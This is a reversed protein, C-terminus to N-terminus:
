TLAYKIILASTSIAIGIPSIAPQIETLGIAGMTTLYYVRGPSLGSLSETFGATEVYVTAGSAVNTKAFGIFTEYFTAARAETLCVTGAAAKTQFIHLGDLDGAGASWSTGDYTQQTGEPYGADSTNRIQYYDTDSQTSTREIVTHYTTGNTVNVNVTFQYSAFSGTLSAATKTDSDLFSGSPSGASDAQIGVRVSDAPSGVTKLVVDIAYINDTSTAVWKQSQKVQNGNTEGFDAAATTTGQIYVQLPTTTGTCVMVADGQSLNQAATALYAVSANLNGKINLSSGTWNLYETTNGIYFKARDSDSDDIGLRFGSQTNDFDTKGSFIASDGSGGTVALEILKSKIAGAALKSVFLSVIKADTVTLNAIQATNSVFENTSASNAALNDVLMIDGGKGGFVQVTADSTSDTNPSAVAILVKGSGVATTATTTTQLAITSVAIDLYIYTTAAMNGTNSAGISYSTGGATTFTGTGWAITNFDTASFTSTFTWGQAAVNTNSLGVLGNLTSTAVSGGTITINSGTIAGAETVRFPATARNAYTDGAWFRVDDGGTVTSALGMSNGADRIYDSGIDFGGISGTTATLTGNIALTTGNWSIYSTANGWYFKVLDNDSDDIGFIFGNAGGANSFDGSAIGARMEVDGEGDRVDLEISKSIIQGSYLKSVTYGENVQIPSIPSNGVDPISSLGAMNNASLIAPYKIGFADYETGFINQEM